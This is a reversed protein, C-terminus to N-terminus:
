EREMKGTAERKRDQPKDILVKEMSNEMKGNDLTNDGTKGPIYELATSEITLTTEKTNEEMKGPTSEKAMCTTTKGSVMMDEGMLGNM